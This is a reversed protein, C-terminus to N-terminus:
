PQNAAHLSVSPFANWRQCDSEDAAYARRLRCLYAGADAQGVGSRLSRLLRGPPRGGAEAGNCVHSGLGTDPFAAAVASATAAPSAPETCTASM